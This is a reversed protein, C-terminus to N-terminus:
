VVITKPSSQLGHSRQHRRRALWLAGVGLELAIFIGIVVLAISGADAQPYRSAAIYGAAIFALNWISVGIAAFPFYTLVPVAVAGAIGPAVLRLGPVLQSVLSFSQANRRLAIALQRMRRCSVGSLRALRGGWRRSRVPGLTAATFYYIGCGLVGGLVSALTLAPVSGDFQAATVGIGLLLLYSPLVPVLREILTAGFVALVSGAALMSMLSTLFEMIVGTQKL